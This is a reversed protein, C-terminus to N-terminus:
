GLLCVTFDFRLAQSARSYIRSQALFSLKCKPCKFNAFSLNPFLSIKVYLDHMTFFNNGHFGMFRCKCCSTEKKAKKGPEKEVRLALNTVGVFSQM